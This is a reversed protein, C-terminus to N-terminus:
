NDILKFIINKDSTDKTRFAPNNINATDNLGTLIPILDFDSELMDLTLAGEFEHQFEFEWYRQKDTLSTGFGLDTIDGVQEKCSIPEINCRLSATNLMTNYNAQQHKKNNEDHKNADTNTIDIVTIIKWRNQM